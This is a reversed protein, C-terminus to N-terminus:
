KSLEPDNWIKIIQTLDNIAREMLVMYSNISGTQANYEIIEECIETIYEKHAILKMMQSQVMM